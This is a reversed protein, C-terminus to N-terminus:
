CGSFSKRDVREKAKASRGHHDPEATTSNVRSAEFLFHNDILGGGGEDVKSM